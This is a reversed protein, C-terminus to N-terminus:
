FVCLNFKMFATSALKIGFRQHMGFREASDAGADFTDFEPPKDSVTVWSNFTDFDPPKESV